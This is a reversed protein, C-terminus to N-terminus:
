ATESGREGGIHHLGLNYACARAGHLFFGGPALTAAAGPPDLSAPNAAKLPPDRHM